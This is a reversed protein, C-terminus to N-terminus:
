DIVEGLLKNVLIERKYEVGPHCIKALTIVRNGLFHNVCVKETNQAKEVGVLRVDPIEWSGPESRRGEKLTFLNDIVELMAEAIADSEVDFVLFIIANFVAIKPATM